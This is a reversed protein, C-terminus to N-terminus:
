GAKEASDLGDGEIVKLAPAVPTRGPPDVPPVVSTTARRERQWLLYDYFNRKFEIAQGQQREMLRHLTSLRLDAIKVLRDFPASYSEYDSYGRIAKYANKSEKGAFGYWEGIKISLVQTAIFILAFFGFSSFAANHQFSLGTSPPSTTASTQGFFSALSATEGAQMANIRLWTSLVAISVILIGAFWVWAYGGLDNPETAVRNACQNHQAFENDISQDDQLAINRNPFHDPKSHSPKENLREGQFQQFCKRLLNTRHIQRGASHTIWVLIAALVVVILLTYLQQEQPTSELGIWAALLASFAAGEMLILIGLVILAWLPMPKRGHDYCKRLYDIRKEFEDKSFYIIHRGYDQCLTMESHLWDRAQTETLDKSLRALRGIVPIRYLVDMMGFSDRAAILVAVFLALAFLMLAVQHQEVFKLFETL